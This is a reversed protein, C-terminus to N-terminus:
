GRNARDRKAIYYTILNQHDERVGDMLTWFERKTEMRDYLELSYEVVARRVDSDIHDLYRVALKGLRKTEDGTLSVGRFPVNHLLGSLVYLGIATTRDGMVGEEESELLDLVSDICEDPKGYAVLDEATEELGSVIHSTSDYHKRATLVACLARPYYASFYKRHKDLMIRTTVLAQTKLDQAKSPLVKSDDNPSELYELLTLLLEDFKAGGEWIDSGSKVLGQLKRFGHVDLTRARIRTIGSDLLRRAQQADEPRATLSKRREAAEYNKWNLHYEDGDPAVAFVNGPENVPLEELAAIRPAPRPTTENDKQQIPDEYVKLPSHTVKIDDSNYSRMRNDSKSNVINTLDRAPIYNHEDVSLRNDQQMRASPLVMTLDEDDNSMWEEVKASASDSFPVNSTYIRSSRGKVPSTGPSENRTAQGKMPSIAPAGVRRHEKAPSVAPSMKPTTAKPIKRSAYPDATAPRPLEPRKAPRMPRMPASSLTGPGTTSLSKAISPRVTAMSTSPRGSSTATSPRSPSFSSSSQASGPREPLAKAAIKAKKQALITEKLSPRSATAASNRLLTPVRTSPPAEPQTKFRAANPNSPHNELLGKSKPDLHSLITEGKEPWLKAFTWYTGRIGERVGPNPDALGKNICRESYEVGGSHEFHSKHPGQKVLITKLWETAFTRPQVNKDQCAAWVHQMLRVNYSVSALIVGVTANGNQASIKKTGACLKILNQLLIEVMSDLGSGVAKAIEQVLFCGNSSVTTRLSNVTKLIGDLLTKIGAMYATYYETPANGKTLKRLKIISKERTSWNPESEKGEFFPHMDCFTDELERQTNVYAPEMKDYEQESASPAIPSAHSEGHGGDDYQPESRTAEGTSSQTSARFDTETVGSLGLQMLIYAAITKRVNRQQLQKKLDTKAHDPATQFLEVVTVKSTERVSGDSDELCDMLRPVFSRFQLGQEKSMVILWQLGAEKARPHKGALAGDRIVHEVEQPCVLWLETLCQSSLWRHREKQDGLREVLLPLTKGSQLTIIHSQKQHSLRKLLNSLTSLGTSILSSHQSSLAIRIIDFIPTVSADPVQHHKISSKLDTILNVKSEISANSGKVVALVDAAQDEMSSEM